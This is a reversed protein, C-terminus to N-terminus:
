LPSTFVRLSGGWAVLDGFNCGGLQGEAQLSIAHTGATVPGLDLLGTGAGPGLFGTTEKLNGDVFINLRISSCDKDPRGGFAKGVWPTYSYLVAAAKSAPTVPLPDLTQKEVGVQWGGATPEGRSLHDFDRRFQAAAEKNQDRITSPAGFGMLLRQRDVPPPETRTIGSQEKQLTALLVRPNIQSTQAAQFLEEAPDIEVGDVDKIRRQLFSDNEELFARILDLNLARFDTFEADNLCLENIPPDSALALLNLSALRLLSRPVDGHSNSPSRAMPPPQLQQPSLSQRQKEVFKPVCIPEYRRVVKGKADLADVKYCLDKLRADPTGDISAGSSGATTVDQRFIEEWPGELSLSRFFVYEAARDDRSWWLAIQNGMNLSDLDGKRNTVTRNPEAKRFQITIFSGPKGRVEVELVNNSELSVDKTFGFVDQSFDDLGAVQRGNLVIVASSVLNRSEVIGPEAGPKPVAQGNKVQLWFTGAPDGVTFTVVQKQPEGAARTFQQPGFVIPGAWSPPTPLVWLLTVALILLKKM